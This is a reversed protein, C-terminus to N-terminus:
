SKNESTNEQKSEEVAAPNEATGSGSESEADVWEIVTKGGHGHIAMMEVWSHYIGISSTDTIWKIVCKGDTFKVGEAVYGTGSVGSEDENRRLRFRRLEVKRRLETM